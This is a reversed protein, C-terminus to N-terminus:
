ALKRRRRLLGLMLLGSGLMAFSGPEPVNVLKAITLSVSDGEGLAGLDWTLYAAADGTYPGTADNYTGNAMAALVDATLGLDWAIPAQSGSMTGNKVIAHCSGANSGVTTVTGGSFSTTGCAAGGNQSGDPHFNFYDSFLLDTINHGTDNTFQFAETM